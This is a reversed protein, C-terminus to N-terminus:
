MGLITRMREYNRYDAERRELESEVWARTEPHLQMKDKNAQYWKMPELPTWDKVYARGAGFWDALMERRAADPMPLAIPTNNLDQELRKQLAYPPEKWWEVAAHWIFAVDEGDMTSITAHTMGDDMSMIGFNPRPNDPTLLWFQWHHKNRKQHLNWARDFADKVNVPQEMLPELQGTKYNMVKTNPRAIKKGYFYDAYAFFEDPLFKDWDHIIASWIPVRFQLCALFVYWKHRLVSKLYKLHHMM